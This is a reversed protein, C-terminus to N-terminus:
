AEKNAADIEVHAAVADLRGIAAIKGGLVGIDAQYRPARTGDIVTANRIVLDYRDM